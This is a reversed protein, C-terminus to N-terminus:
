ARHVRVGASPICRFTDPTLGFIREYEELRQTYASHAAQDLLVLSCCSHTSGVMKAGYIGETEGSRKVLWDLEPYSAEYLDRLSSHSRLLLRGLQVPDRRRLAAATERVREIEAVIHMCHRRIVESYTGMAENLDDTSFDRLACGAKGNGLAKVCDTMEQVRDVVEVDEPFVPIQVDTVHFRAGNLRVPIHSYDLTRADIYVVTDPKAYYSVFFALLGAPRGLFEVEANHACRILQSVSLEFSRLEQVALAIALGLATSCGLGIGQPVNGEITVSTGKLPCGVRALEIMVGKLHNAWRDERRFRLGAITTKKRENRLVSYFRLSNDTRRSVAVQMRQATAMGVAIGDSFETDAGMITVVGPASVVVEPPAGHERMHERAIDTM